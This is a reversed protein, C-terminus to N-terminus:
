YPWLGDYPIKIVNEERHTNQTHIETATATHKHTYWTVNCSGQPKLFRSQKLNVVLGLEM